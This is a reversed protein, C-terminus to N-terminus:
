GGAFAAQGKHTSGADVRAIIASLRNRVLGRYRYSSAISSHGLCSAIDGLDGGNEAIVGAFAHRLDHVRTPPLGLAEVADDVAAGLLSKVSQEQVNGPKLSYNHAIFSVVTPMDRVLRASLPIRRSITKTKRDRPKTVRVYGGQFDVQKYAFLRESAADRTRFCWRLRIGGRM